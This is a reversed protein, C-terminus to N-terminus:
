DAKIAKAGVSPLLGTANPLKSDLASGIAAFLPPWSNLYPPAPIPNGQAGIANGLNTLFAALFLPDALAAAIDALTAVTKVNGPATQSAALAPGAAVFANVILLATAEVTAVHANAGMGAASLELTTPYFGGGGPEEFAAVFPRSPDADAFCVLVRAGLSTSAKCGPVGYRIPVNRLDPMGTSVRVPQLNLRENSLTVVRYEAFTGRYKRGPDLADYLARHAAIRRSSQGGMSGWVTSRLGGEASVEHEVDVVNLGDVVCGPLITAITDSALTVTGRALDVPGHTVGPITLALSPRRGLRTVGDEGVYWNGPAVLELVRSATGEPRVFAPGLRATTALEVVEGVAEAADRIVTAVSVGLDNSYSRRPITKGWGGKGGVIRYHSRGNDPGGSLVCGSLTLDAIRLEVVGSLTHDGDLSADAFWAGFAPLNARAHTALRGALAADITM